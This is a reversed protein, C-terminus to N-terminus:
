DFRTAESCCLKKLQARGDITLIPKGFNKEHSFDGEHLNYITSIRTFYRDFRQDQIAMQLSGRIQQRVEESNRREPSM